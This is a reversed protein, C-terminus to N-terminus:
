QTPSSYVVPRFGPRDKEFRAIEAEVAMTLDIEDLGNMLNNKVFADIEFGAELGATTVKQAPLDVVIQATPDHEALDGLHKVSSEDLVIPLLGNKHSNTTFIDAFSPAIIAQFGWDMLAWPAHERSSGSGFNRGAILVRASRYAPNNLVFDPRLEGAADRAWDYFLYPGFGTKEVRKLFQKPIIQDTDVDARLLPAMTGTITNVPKM